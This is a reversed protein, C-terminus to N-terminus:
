GDRPPSKVLGTIVFAAGAGLLTGIPFGVAPNTFYSIIFALAVGFIACAAWINGRNMSGM